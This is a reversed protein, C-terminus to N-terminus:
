ISKESCREKENRKGGEISALLLSKGRKLQSKVTNLNRGLLSAIENVSLEYLYRYCLVDRYTDDLMYIANLISQVDEDDCIQKELNFSDAIEYESEDLLLTKNNRQLIKLAMNKATITVYAATKYDTPNEVANLHKAIAIFAEQVADEADYQNHLIKYATYLMKKKHTQYIQLFKQTDAENDILVGLLLLM